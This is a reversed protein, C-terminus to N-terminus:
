ANQSTTLDRRHGQGPPQFREVDRRDLFLQNGVREAKLLQSKIYRTVQSHSVRLLGAAQTVTMANSKLLSAMGM